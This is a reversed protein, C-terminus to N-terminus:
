EISVGLVYSASTSFWPDPTFPSEFAESVLSAAPARRWKRCLGLKRALQNVRTYSVGYKQALEKRMLQGAKIESELEFRAAYTLKAAGTLRTHDRQKIWAEVLGTTDVQESTMVMHQVHLAGISVNM